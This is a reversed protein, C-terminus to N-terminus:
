NAIKHFLNNRVAEHSKMIYDIKIVNSYDRAFIRQIYANKLALTAVLTKNEKADIDYIIHKFSRSLLSLHLHFYSLLLKARCLM